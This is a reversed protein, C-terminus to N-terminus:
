MRKREATRKRSSRRQGWNTVYIAVFDPLVRHVDRRGCPATPRLRDVFPLRWAPSLRMLMRRRKALPFTYYVQLSPPLSQARTFAAKVVFGASTGVNGSGKINAVGSSAKLVSPRFKTVKVLFSLKVNQWSPGTQTM